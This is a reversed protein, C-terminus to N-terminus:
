LINVLLSFILKSSLALRSFFRVQSVWALIDLPSDFSELRVVDRRAPEQEPSSCESDNSQNPSATWLFTVRWTQTRMDADAVAMVYQKHKEEKQYLSIRQVAFTLGKANESVWNSRPYLLVIDYSLKKPVM